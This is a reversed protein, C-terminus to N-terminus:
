RLACSHSQLSAVSLTGTVSDLLSILDSFLLYQSLANLSLYQLMFVLSLPFFLHYVHHMCVCMFFILERRSNATVQYVVFEEDMIGQPPHRLVELTECMTPCKKLVHQRGLSFRLVVLAVKFVIKVGIHHYLFSEMLQLVNHTNRQELPRTHHLSTAQFHRNDTTSVVDVM